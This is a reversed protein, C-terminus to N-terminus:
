NNSSKANQPIRLKVIFEEDKKETELLDNMGYVLNLRAKVNELGIGKGKKVVISQEIHNAIEITLM